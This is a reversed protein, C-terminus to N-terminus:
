RHTPVIGTRASGGFGNSRCSGCGALRLYRIHPESEAVLARPRGPRSVDRRRHHPPASITALGPQPVTHTATAPRHLRRAPPRWRANPRAARRRPASVEPANAGAPLLDGATM